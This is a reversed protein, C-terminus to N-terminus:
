DAVATSAGADLHTSTGELAGAGLGSFSVSNDGLEYIIDDWGPAPRQMAHCPWFAAGLRCDLGGPQAQALLRQM